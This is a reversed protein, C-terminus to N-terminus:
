IREILFDIARSIYDPCNGNESTVIKSAVRQGLRGKSITKVDKLFQEEDLTDPDDKWGSVRTRLSNNSSLESIANCLVKRRGETFLSIEFTYDSVFIGHVEGCAFLEGEDFSDIEVTTDICRILSKVRNVGLAVGEDQPDYDTLVAMPLNLGQPGLLKVFPTFNTGDVSCVLIGHLELDKGLKEALPSIVYEESPGEVLLVGKAFAIEGRKVELYRELDDLDSEPLDLNATSVGITSGDARSKRLLVLSKLPSVSVVHPSHTTMLKTMSDIADEDDVGGVQHSRTRLFRRYVLRQLQPHLHSEPEEIALFTHDRVNEEALLNLELVKLSIYLANASGLSAETILRKRGDIFLKLSRFLKEPSTSAFGFDLELSNSPGVMSSFGAQIEEALNSIEETEGIADTAESITTALEQRREDDIRSIAQDLLASLPSRSRSALASEPDRLAPLVELPLRRRVESSIRSEERSGGFVFFHYDADRSPERELAPLPQFVYTLRAIMPDHSSLFGGLVALQDDDDEFDKLEVVIRIEDDRGINEIGDWFDERRLQRASDPLSPDLILRLAYILNSKGIKNEGVIVAHEGLNIDLNRFNRFNTIAIRSIQM